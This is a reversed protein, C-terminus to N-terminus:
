FTLQAIITYKKSVESLLNALGFHVNQLFESENTLPGYWSKVYDQMVHDLIQDIVIDLENCGSVSYTIRKLNTTMVNEDIKILGRSLCSYAKQSKWRRDPLFTM